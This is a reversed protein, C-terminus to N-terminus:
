LQPPRTAMLEVQQDDAIIQNCIDICENCIYVTPGAILRKIEDQSKGCFSCRLVPKLRYAILKRKFLMVFEGKRAPGRKSIDVFASSGPM